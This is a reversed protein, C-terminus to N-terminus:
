APGAAPTADPQMARAAAAMRARDQEAKRQAKEAMRKATMRRQLDQTYTLGGYKGQKAKKGAQYLAPQAIEV